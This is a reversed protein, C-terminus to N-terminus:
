QAKPASETSTEVSISNSKGGTGNIEHKELIKIHDLKERFQEPVAKREEETDIPGKFVISGKADKATMVRHGDDVWVEIDGNEDRLMLRAKAGDYTTVGDKKYIKVQGSGGPAAWERAAAAAAARAKDLEARTQAQIEEADRRAKEGIEKGVGRAREGAAEGYKKMEEGWEEAHKGNFFSGMKPMPVPKWDYGEGYPTSPLAREGVKTTVKQEQGKRLLTITVEKDKGAGRVLASLQEPNVLQQDNLSKLVDYKQLGATAAPSDPMVEDVLLGFGDPLGLQATLAPPLPSTVIGLFPQPEHREQPSKFPDARRPAPVGAGIGGRPPGDPKDQTQILLNGYAHPQGVVVPPPQAPDVIPPVGAPPAAFPPADEAFAAAMSLAATLISILRAKTKM